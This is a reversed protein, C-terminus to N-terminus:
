LNDWDNTVYSKLEDLHKKARADKMIKINVGAVAMSIAQRSIKFKKAIVSQLVREGHPIGYYMRYINANRKPIGALVQELLALIRKTDVDLVISDEYDSEPALINFEADAEHYADLSLSTVFVNSHDRKTWPESSLTDSDIRSRTLVHLAENRPVYVPLQESSCWISLRKKIWFGLHTILKAGKQSDYYPLAEIIAMFAESLLDDLSEHPLWRLYKKSLHYAFKSYARCIADVAAADGSCARAVFKPETGEPLYKSTTIWDYYVRSRAFSVDQVNATHRKMQAQTAM